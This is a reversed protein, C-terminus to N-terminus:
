VEQSEKPTRVAYNTPVAVYDELGYQKIEDETFFYSRENDVINLDLGGKGDKRFYQSPMSVNPPLNMVDIMFKFNHRVKYLQKREYDQEFM